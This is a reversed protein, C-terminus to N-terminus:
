ERAIQIYEGPNKGRGEPLDTIGGNLSQTVIGKSALVQATMLSTNGAMCVLLSKGNSGDFEKKFEEPIQQTSLLQNITRAKPISIKSKDVGLSKAIMEIGEERPTYQTHVWVIKDYEQAVSAADELSIRMPIKDKSIQEFNKRYKEIGDCIMAVYRGSNESSVKQLIAYLELASSEGMDIGKDVFYKLLFKAKEFDVQHEEAYIDPQYLKLGSAKDKTRIGAVDQGPAPFVIHVSKKGYKQNIYQSLGGSTGGTGFSCVVQYNELSEGNYHLQQDIEAATVERHVEINLDNDYQKPCFLDYIDALYRALNIIDQKALLGEIESISKDFIEPNFGLEVLQSRVNAATAKAELEKAKNEMGPAPCIDMDLDMIRINENRLEKFVGEQLKRSVLAVVNIGLKSLQGLAIGFNGSTAEIVTQNGKLKGSVIADHIIHTAARAKISGSLLTSDLKGYVKIDKDDLNVKFESKACEKFTETLDVLPTENVIKKEGNVEQIHPIKNWIEEEFRSLLQKDVNTNESM